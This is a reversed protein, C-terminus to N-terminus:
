CFPLHDIAQFQLSCGGERGGGERGSKSVLYGWEWGYGNNIVFSTSVTKTKKKANWYLLFILPSSSCYIPLCRISVHIKCPEWHSGRTVDLTLAFRRKWLRRHCLFTGHFGNLYFCHLNTSHLADVKACCFCQNTMNEMIAFGTVARHPVCTNYTVQAMM